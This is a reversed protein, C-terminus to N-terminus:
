SVASDKWARAEELYAYATVRSIRLVRAIRDIARKVLFAGKKDLFGIVAVKDERTMASVPIGVRSVALQVLGDLVDSIETGFIEASDPSVPDGTGVLESLADRAHLYPQVDFNICLAGILDGRMNRFYISSSRLTRGDPTRGQYGFRDPDVNANRLAELGLNTSPGGVHRGTVHGNEIAIISSALYDRAHIDHLVVECRPGVTLAIAKMIPVLLDALDAMSEVPLTIAM